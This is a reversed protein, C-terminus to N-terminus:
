FEVGLGGLGHLAVNPVTAELGSSLDVSGYGFTWKGELSLFWRTSMPIRIGLAGQTAIGAIQYGGDTIVGQINSIPFAILPGAGARAVFRGFQWAHNVLLMNYGNAIRFTQIGAPTNQLYIKHHLFEIEWGRSSNWRGFRLSYYPGGEFANTSYDAKFEYQPDIQLITEFNYASGTHLEVRWVPDATVVASFAIMM